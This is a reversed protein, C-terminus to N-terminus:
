KVYVSDGKSVKLGNLQWVNFCNKTNGMDQCKHLLISM